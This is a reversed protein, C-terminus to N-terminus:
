SQIGHKRYVEEKIKRMLDAQENATAGSLVSKEPRQVPEQAPPTAPIHYSNTTTSTNGIKEGFLALAATPNKKSLEGIESPKMGLEKARKAIEASANDGFKATLAQRVKDQNDTQKTEESRKSLVNSVIDLIEKEGLSEQNTIPTDQPPTQKNVIDQVRENAELKVKLENIVAEQETVQTKLQPIYQQSHQLAEIAKEVTDYKPAGDDNKIVALQDAFVDNPNVVPTNPVPTEQPKVKDDEFLPDAM